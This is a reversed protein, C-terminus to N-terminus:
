KSENEAIRSAAEKANEELNGVSATEPTDVKSAADKAATVDASDQGDNEEHMENRIEVERANQADDGVREAHENNANSM